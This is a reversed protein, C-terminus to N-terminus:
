AVVEQQEFQDLVQDLFAAQWSQLIAQRSYPEVIGTPPRVLYGTQGGYTNVDLITWGLAACAQRVDDPVTLNNVRPHPNM